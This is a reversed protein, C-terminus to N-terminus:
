RSAPTVGAARYFEDLRRLYAQREEPTRFFDFESVARQVRMLDVLFDYVANAAAEDATVAAEQADLLTIIPVAGRSYADTVLDLNRRAAEAALRAQEIGAWSAGARHLTARVRAAVAADVAQREFTLRALELSAQTRAAGRQFGTFLPLTAQLRLSWTYAPPLPISVGGVDVPTSGAGGRSFVESMAGQLAVTPLWYARGAATRARRQGAIAADLARLEPSAARGETVTFDRFV